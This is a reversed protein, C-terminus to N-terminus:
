PTRAIRLGVDFYRMGPSGPVRKASRGGGASAYWSGGRIARYTAPRQNIPDEGPARDYYNRDFWDECWERVNGHMNYLGFPNPPYTGVTTPRQLNPGKNTTGYPRTGDVNASRGDNIRGFSFPTTTGARCAYEWEAETPLRYGQGGAVVVEAGTISEGSRQVNQLIYYPQRGDIASLRNCFELADYFSVWEVPFRDTNMGAVRSRQGGTASFQSPNVGMVQRYEAQTVECAGLYFPRTIRVRRPGDKGEDDGREIETLSSGMLFEGPAILM